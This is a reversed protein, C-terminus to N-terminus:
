YLLFFRENARKIEIFRRRKPCCRAISHVLLEQDRYRFIAGGLDMSARIINRMEAYGHENVDLTRYEERAPPYYTADDNNQPVGKIDHKSLIGIAEQLMSVGENIFLKRCDVITYFDEIVIRKQLIIDGADIEEDVYHITIGFAKEGNRISWFIPNAGRYKPLLSPHVNIIGKPICDIIEGPIIKGFTAVVGLEIGLKKVIAVFKKKTINSQDFLAINPSWRAIDETLKRNYLFRSLFKRWNDDTILDTVVIKIDYDKM